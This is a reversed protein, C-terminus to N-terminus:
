KKTLFFMMSKQMSANSTSNANSKKNKASIKDAKEPVKDVPVTEPKTIPASPTNAEDDTVEEYVMETVFYGKEDTFM